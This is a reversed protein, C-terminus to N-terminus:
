RWKMCFVEINCSNRPAISFIEVNLHKKFKKFNNKPGYIEMFCGGQKTSNLCSQEVTIIM